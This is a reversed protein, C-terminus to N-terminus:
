RLRRPNREAIQLFLNGTGLPKDGGRYDCKVQVRQGFHVILDAGKIQIAADDVEDASVWFPFFGRHMLDVVCAVARAGKESTSGQFGTWEFLPNPIKRMDEIDDVKVVMGKATIGVVGPQGAFAEKGGHIAALGNATPFVYVAENVVSVHARVDSEETHIGYEFLNGDKPRTELSYNM